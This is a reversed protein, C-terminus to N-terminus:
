FRVLVSGTVAETLEVVFSNDDIINIPAIMKNGSDDMIDYQFLETNKSHTVLWTDNPNDFVYKVLSLGEIVQTAVAGIYSKVSGANVVQKNTPSANLIDMDPFTNTETFDNNIGERVTTDLVYNRVSVVNVAREEQDQNPSVVSIDVQPFTNIGTFTNDNSKIAAVDEVFTKINNANVIQEGATKVDANPVTNIGTIVNDLDKFFAVEEVYTRASVANVINQDDVKIDTDITTTHESEFQLTDVYDKVSKVNVARNGNQVSASQINIDPFTNVGTFENDGAKLAATTEVYSKVSNANVIQQDASNVDADPVTNIGILNNDENKLTTVALLYDKISDANVIQNTSNAIDINPAVTHEVSFAIAEVYEVVSSVNVVQKSTPDVTIDVDPFTNIGTFNNDSSPNIGMTELIANKVQLSSWLKDSAGNPDTDDIDAAINIKNNVASIQIGEGSTFKINEYNQPIIENESQDIDIAGWTPKASILIKSNDIPDPTVDLSGDFQLTQIDSTGNNYEVTFKCDQLANFVADGSPVHNTDGSVIEQTVYDQHAVGMDLLKIINSNAPANYLGPGGIYLSNSKYSYALEGSKLVSPADNDLSIKIQMQSM